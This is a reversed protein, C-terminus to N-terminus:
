IEQMSQENSSFFFGLHKIGSIELCGLAKGKRVIGQNLRQLALLEFAFRKNSKCDLSFYLGWM